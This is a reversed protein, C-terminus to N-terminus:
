KHPKELSLITVYAYHGAGGVNHALARGRQITAQAKPNAYKGYEGRLQKTLTYIMSIGTAGIPHGKSKLGGDLNVPILGGNYTQKERILRSGGGRRCFRLDEYAMIEAITFCDHVCAVDIFKTPDDLDIGAKRYAQEAAKTASELGCYNLKLTKERTILLASGTAAGISNVWIPTDTIKKALGESALIVASSGDTLPCCDFLKLPWAIYRSKMVDDLTIEKRFQAKPNMAGYYHNKVAVEALDEEKLGYKSIYSVAHLAYYSPFTLGFSEFEWLYSGGGRGMREIQLITPLEHMKEVGLVLVLDAFGSAVANYGVLLAASGSACMAEVRMSGKPLMGCYEACVVAPSDEATWVGACGQVMFELDKLELSADTLAEKVAEFALEDIRVDYRNGFSSQGVGVIAVDRM